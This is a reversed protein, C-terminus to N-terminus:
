RTPYDDYLGEDQPAYGNLFADHGRTSVHFEGGALPIITIRWRGAGVRDVVTQPLRLTEGPQIEIECTLPSIM